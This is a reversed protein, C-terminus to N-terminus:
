YEKLMALIMKSVLATDNVIARLQLYEDEVLAGKSDIYESIRIRASESRRLADELKIRLMIREAKTM